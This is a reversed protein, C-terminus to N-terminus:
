EEKSFYEEIETDINYQEEVIQSFTTFPIGDDIDQKAISVTGNEDQRFFYASIMSKDIYLNKSHKNEKCYAEFHGPNKERLTGLRILQNLRGMFYDSHTTIQLFMGKNICRTLLDAVACQMQPHLHAEPEEFLISFSSIDDYNQLLLLLPTLEKVSSAAATIPIRGSKGPLNLFVEGKESVLHGGSLIKVVSEYFQKDTKKAIPKSIMDFDRLFDNYMGLASIIKNTSFNAGVFAGRAPPFIITRIRKNFLRHSLYTRLGMLIMLKSDSFFDSPFFYGQNNVTLRLMEPNIEDKKEEEKEPISLTIEIKEIDRLSWVFNVDCKFNQNGILYAIFSEIDKNMWRRLEDVTFSINVQKKKFGEDSLKKELFHILRSGSLLSLFYYPLFATYSKGLGSKGTFLMFPTFDLESDKIPGLENILIKINSM